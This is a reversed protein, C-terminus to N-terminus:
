QAVVSILGLKKFMDTTQSRILEMYIYPQLSSTNAFGVEDVQDHAFWTKFVAEPLVLYNRVFHRIWNPYLQVLDPFKESLFSEIFKATVPQSKANQEVNKQPIYYLLYGTKRTPFKKLIKHDNLFKLYQELEQVVFDNLPIFRGVPRSASKKDHVYLMKTTSDYDEVRGPAGEVPRGGTALLCCFWLWVSYANVKQEISVCKDLIEIIDKNLRNLFAKAKDWHWVRQSGIRIIENSKVLCPVDVASDIWNNSWLMIYEKIMLDVESKAFGAYSLSPEHFVQKGLLFDKIPKNRCMRSLHFCFQMAISNVSLNGLCRGEFWKALIHNLDTNTYSIFDKYQVAERIRDVWMRPVHFQWQTSDNYKNGQKAIEGKLKRSVQADIVWLYHTKANNLVLRKTNLLHDIYIFSVASLGTFISLLFCGAIASEQVVEAEDSECYQLRNIFENYIEKLLERDIYHSNSVAVFDRRAIHKRLKEDPVFDALRKTDEDDNLDYSISVEDENVEDIDQIDDEDGIYVYMLPPIEVYAPEPHVGSKSKRKRTTVAKRHFVDIFAFKFVDMYTIILHLDTESLQEDVQGFLQFIKEKQEEAEQTVEKISCKKTNLEDLGNLFNLMEQLFKEKYKRKNMWKFVLYLTYSLKTRKSKSNEIDNLMKLLSTISNFVGVVLDFYHNSSLDKLGMDKLLIYPSSLGLFYQFKSKLKYETLVDFVKKSHKLFEYYDCQGFVLNADNSVISKLQYVSFCVGSLNIKKSM